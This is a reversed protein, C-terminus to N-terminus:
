GQSAAEDGTELYKKTDLWGVVQGGGSTWLTNNEDEAFM